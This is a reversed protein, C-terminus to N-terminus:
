DPKEPRTIRSVKLCCMPILPRRMTSLSKNRQNVAKADALQKGVKEQRQAPTDDDNLAEELAAMTEEVSKFGTNIEGVLEQFQEQTVHLIPDANPDANPDTAPNGTGQQQQANTPQQSKEKEAEERKKAIDLIPM